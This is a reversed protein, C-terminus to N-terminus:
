VQEVPANTRAASSPSSMEPLRKQLCGFSGSNSAHVQGSRAMAAPPRLSAVESLSIFKRRRSSRPCIFKPPRKNEPGKDAFEPMSVVFVEVVEITVLCMDSHNLAMELSNRVTM